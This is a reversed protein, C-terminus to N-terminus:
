KPEGTNRNQPCNRRAGLLSRLSAPRGHRWREESCFFDKDRIGSCVAPEKRMGEAATRIAGVVLKIRRYLPPTSIFKNGVRLFGFKNEFYLEHPWTTGCVWILLLARRVWQRHEPQADEIALRM